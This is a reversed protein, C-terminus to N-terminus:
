MKIKVKITTLYFNQVLNWFFFPIGSNVAAMNRKWNTYIEASTYNAKISNKCGGMWSGVLNKLIKNSQMLILWQTDNKIGKKCM